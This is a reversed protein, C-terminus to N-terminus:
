RMEPAQGRGAEAEEGYIAGPAPRVHRGELEGPRDEPALGDVDVAVPPHEAVEGIHGVKDPGDPEQDVLGRFPGGRRLLDGLAVAERGDRGPADDVDAVALLDREAIEDRRDLLRRAARGDTVEHLHLLAVHRRGPGVVTQQGPEGAVPRFGADLGAHGGEDGPVAFVVPNSRRPSYRKVPPPRQCLVAAPAALYSLQNSCM